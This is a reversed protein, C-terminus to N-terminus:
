LIDMYELLIVLFKNSAISNKLM